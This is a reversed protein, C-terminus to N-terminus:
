SSAPRLATRSVVKRRVRPVRSLLTRVRRKARDHPGEYRQPLRREPTMGFCKCLRALAGGDARQLPLVRLVHTGKGYSRKEGQRSEHREWRVEPMRRGLRQESESQVSVFFLDFLQGLDKLLIAHM